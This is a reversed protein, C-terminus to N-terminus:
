QIQLVAVVQAPAFFIKRGWRIFPLTRDQQQQRVWRISRRLGFEGSLFEILGAADFLFEPAPLQFPGSSNRTQKIPLVTLRNGAHALVHNPCFLLRRGVKTTPISPQQNRLWRLSPRSREDPWVSQLLASANVFQNKSLLSVQAGTDQVAAFNKM